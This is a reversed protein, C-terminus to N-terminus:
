GARGVWVGQVSASRHQAEGDQDAPARRQPGAPGTREKGVLQAVRRTDARNIELNFDIERDVPHDFGRGLIGFDSWRSIIITTFSDVCCVVFLCM